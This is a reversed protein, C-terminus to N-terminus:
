EIKINKLVLLDVTSENWKKTLEEPASSFGYTFSSLIIDEDGDKDVDGSDMLFWKGINIDNLTFAQFEFNMPSKNELYVFVYEPSNEYDPFTSLLAMDFDGDDDFDKAIVRTAGNMSYFYKEEYVNNGDNIHIRMGHYPKQIYTEDANDGNVTIIDQDGDGDYDILEFWSSGYIPSFRIVKKADFKLKEKQYFITVGEDGQSSL